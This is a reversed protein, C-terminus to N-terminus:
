SNDGAGALDEYADLMVRISALTTITTNLYLNAASLDSDRQAQTRNPDESRTRLFIYEARAYTYLQIKDYITDGLRGV